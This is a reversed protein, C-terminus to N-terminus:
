LLLMMEGPHPFAGAGDWDGPFIGADTRQGGWAPLPITEASETVM